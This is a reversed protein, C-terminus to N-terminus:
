GTSDTAIILRITASASRRSKSFRRVLATRGQGSALQGADSDVPPPLVNTARAAETRGMVSLTTAAAQWIASCKFAASTATSVWEPIDHSDTFKTWDVAGQLGASGPDVTM